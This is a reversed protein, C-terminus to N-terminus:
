NLEHVTPRGTNTKYLRIFFIVTASMRAQFCRCRAPQLVTWSDTVVEESGVVSQKMTVFRRNYLAEVVM